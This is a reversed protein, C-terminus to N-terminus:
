RTVRQLLAPHGARRCAARGSRITHVRSQRLRDMRWSPSRPSRVPEGQEPCTCCPPPQHEAGSLRSPIETSLHIDPGPWDQHGQLGSRRPQDRAAQAHRQPRPIEGHDRVSAPARRHRNSLGNRGAAAREARPQDATSTAAPRPDVAGDRRGLPLRLRQREPRGRPDRAGTWPTLTRSWTAAPGTGSHRPGGARRGSPRSCWSGPAGSIPRDAPACTLGDNDSAPLKMHACSGRATREVVAMAEGAFQGGVVQLDHERELLLRLGQRLIAHDDVLVIRVPESAAGGRRGRRWM